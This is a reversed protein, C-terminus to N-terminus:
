VPLALMAYRGEGRNWARKKVPVSYYFDTGQSVYVALKAEIAKRLEM